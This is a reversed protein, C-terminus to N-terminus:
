NKSLKKYSYNALSLYYCADKYKKNAQLCESLLECYNALYQHDENDQFYPIVTEKLYHELSIQDGLVRLKYVQFYYEFLKYDEKDTVMLLGRDVMEMLQSQDDLEFLAEVMSAITTLKGKFNQTEKFVLSQEFHKFAKKYDDKAAYLNGLNQYAVGKLSPEQLYNAAKISLNFAEEARDFQKIRKYCIGLLIQCDASRRFDFNISYLDLALRTYHLCLTVNQLALENIAILFYLDSKEFDNMPRINLISLANTYNTHADMYRYSLNAFLGKFKFHYYQHKEEFMDDMRDLKELLVPVESLHRMLLHYRVEFLKFLALISPSVNNQVEQKLRLYHETAQDNKRQIIMSYWEHLDQELQEEDMDDSDMDFQINLRDFLLKMIEDSPKTNGNEIKSLYSLSCIGEATGELTRNQNLRHFKIKKGLEANM